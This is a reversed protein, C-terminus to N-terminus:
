PSGNERRPCIDVKLDYMPLSLLPVVAAPQYADIITSLVLIANRIFRPNRQSRQHWLLM